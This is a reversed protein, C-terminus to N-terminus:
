PATADSRLMLGRDCGEGSTNQEELRATKLEEQFRALDPKTELLIELIATRERIKLHSFPHSAARATLTELLGRYIEHKLELPLSEFADSYIMYSCRYTFLRTELDFDKLSRGQADPHRNKRFAEEFEGAGQVGGDPLGMEDCFLLYELIRKAENEVVRRATGTLNETAPDGLERQLERQYYIWKRARLGGQILRNHMEVQHELVMLAVIDSDPRPYSETRFFSDLRTLNAGAEMDLHAGFASEKAIANGMHRATGHAGTVYWGGWREALPSEHGTLFSGAATILEGQQDPFVSRVMVGPWNRTLSGAHCSLCSADREFQPGSKSRADFHYFVLGLQPDSIAAEILGGSVFGIYCDDSFYIARPRDPSIARRQLSTKSFVLVQSEVPVELENLVMHLWEKEPGLALELKKSDIKQQLSTIRNSATTQSYEIPPLEYERQTQANSVATFGSTIAFALFRHLAPSGFNM